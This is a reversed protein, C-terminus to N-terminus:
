STSRPDNPVKPLRAPNTDLLSIKVGPFSKAILLEWFHQTPNLNVGSEILQSLYDLHVASELLKSYPFIAGIQLGSIVARRSLGREGFHVISRKFHWNKWHSIENTLFTQWKEGHFYLFYSQLHHSRQNSDTLGTMDNDVSTLDSDLIKELKAIDWLMSNNILLLSLYTDSIERTLLGDRFAGFDRGRNKRTIVVNNLQEVLRKVENEDIRSNTVVIVENDSAAFLNM